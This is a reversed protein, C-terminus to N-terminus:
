PDNSKLMLRASDFRVNSIPFPTTRNNLAEALQDAMDALQPDRLKALDKPDSRHVLEFLGDLIIQDVPVLEPDVADKPLQYNVRATFHGVVNGDDFLAASMTDSRFDVLSPEAM